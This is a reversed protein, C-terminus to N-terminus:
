RACREKYRKIVAEVAQPDIDNVFAVREMRVAAEMVDGTGCFPDVVIDGLGTHMDIFPIIDEFNEDGDFTTHGLDFRPTGKYFGLILKDSETSTFSGSFTLHTRRAVAAVVSDVVSLSVCLALVGRPTLIRSAADAVAACREISEMLSVTKSSGYSYRVDEFPPRTWILQVSEPQVASLFTVADKQYVMCNEDLFEPIM